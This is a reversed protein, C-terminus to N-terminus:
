VKNLLFFSLCLVSFQHCWLTLTLHYLLVSLLFLSFSVCFVCGDTIGHVSVLWCTDDAGFWLRIFGLKSWIGTNFGVMFWFKHTNFRRLAPQPEALDLGVWDRQWVEWLWFDCEWLRLGTRMWVWCM